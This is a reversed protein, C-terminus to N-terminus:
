RMGGVVSRIRDLYMTQNFEGKVVYSLAGAARGRERSEASDLSTVLMAPTRQLEPDTTVLQVFEFGNMGPMEVDVLFLSYTKLRAMALGQEASTALDVDYGEAELISQELMRTTLSDDIVLIPALREQVRPQLPAQRLATQLLGAPDLVLHPEGTRGPASGAIFPLAAVYSALPRLLVEGSGEVRDVLLAMRRAGDRTEDRVVVCSKPGRNGHVRARRVSGSSDRRGSPQLLDSLNLYPMLDAGVRLSSSMEESKNPHAKLRFTQEVATLPISLTTELVSVQLCAVSFMTQPVIITFTSGKGEVTEVQLSGRMREASERVADLGIGRGSVADATHRTSFDALLIVQLVQEASARQAQAETWVGRRIAAERIPALAIGRGDDMCTLAISSGRREIAISITATAPKGHKLREEVPEVGHAVANRVLHLLADQLAEMVQADLREMASHTVCRVPKSQAAATARAIRGAELLMGAVPSLRLQSAMRHLEALHRDLRDLNDEVKRAFARLEPSPGAFRTDQASELEARMTAAIISVECVQGLVGRAEQVQVRVTGASPTRVLEAAAALPTEAVASAPEAATATTPSFEVALDDALRLLQQAAANTPRDRYAVVADEFEHALAALAREGVVHAAGKLTHAARLMAQLGSRVQEEVDHGAGTEVRSMLGAELTLRDILDKAEMEFYTRIDAQM